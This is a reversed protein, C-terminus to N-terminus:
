NRVTKNDLPNQGILIKEPNNKNISTLTSLM